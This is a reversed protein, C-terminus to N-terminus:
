DEIIVEVKNDPLFDYLEEVEENRMRLCGLSSATGISEPAATGHIGYGENSNDSIRTLRMWRTGLVNEPHGFPFGNWSPEKKKGIIKFAGVPTRNDKGIGVKYYKFLRDDLMVRLTFNSKSCLLKWTGGFFSLRQGKHVVEKDLPIRNSIQIARVTTRKNAFIWMSDGSGVTFSVKRKSPAANKYMYINIDNIQDALRYWEPTYLTTKDLLKHIEEYAADHFGKTRLEAAEHLTKEIASLLEPSASSTAPKQTVQPSTPYKPSPTTPAITNQVKSINNASPTTEPTTENNTQDANVTNTNAEESSQPTLSKPWYTYAGFAIGLFVAVFFLYKYLPYM